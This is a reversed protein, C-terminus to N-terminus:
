RAYSRHPPATYTCLVPVSANWPALSLIATPMVTNGYAWLVWHRQRPPQPSHGLAAARRSTTTHPFGAVGNHPPRPSLPVMLRGAAQWRGHEQRPPAPQADFHYLHTGHHWQNPLRQACGRGATYRGECAPPQRMAGTATPPRLLRQRGRSAPHGGGPIALSPAGCVDTDKRPPAPWCGLSVARGPVPLAIM